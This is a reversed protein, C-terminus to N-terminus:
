RNELRDSESALHPMVISWLDICVCSINYKAVM